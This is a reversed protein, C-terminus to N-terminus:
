LVLNPVRGHRYLLRPKSIGYGQVFDVGMNKLLSVTEKDEASEAITQMGMAHGVDNIASVLTHNVKDQAMRRVFSGDIKLYDVSFERLYSFSSLGSGFDDLSFLCGLQRLESVFRKAQAFNRIAATETIEFCICDPPVRSNKLETQIYNTMDPDTLSLGSLNIAMIGSGNVANKFVTAYQALASSVVWRDIAVMMGFREAAPIFAGPELIHGETDAVRVLIEIHECVSDSDQQLPEISQGLLIFRKDHLAQSLSAASRLDAQRQAVEEDEPQYVHYRNRGGDKAAYCAIDALSLLHSVTSSSMSIPVLGISAGIEFQNDQWSFRFSKLDDILAQAIRCAVDLNCGDLLVGFEDGGLRAVTDHKRVRSALMGAVQRLLQDGANHGVTDNVIKFQDLDLYCLVHEIGSTKSRERAGALRHEFERRNILGTLEDHTAQHILQQSLQYSDTIDQGVGRYGKFEGGPSLVPKAIMRYVAVADNPLQVTLETTAASKAELRQLFSRVSKPEHTMGQLVMSFDQGQLALATRGTLKALSESVYVLRNAADLEWAVDVAIEAFDQFRQLLENGSNPAPADTNTSTSTSTSPNIILCVSNNNGAHELETIHMVVSFPKGPLTHHTLRNAYGSGQALARGIFSIAEDTHAFLDLVNLGVLEARACEYLNAAAANSDIIRLTRSDLLLVAPADGSPVRVGATEGVQEDSAPGMPSELWLMRGDSLSLRQYHRWSIVDNLWGRDAAVPQSLQALRQELWAAADQGDDLSIVGQELQLELWHRIDLGVKLHGGLYAHLQAFRTNWALLQAQPGFLALGSGVVAGNLDPLTAPLLERASGSFGLMGGRPSLRPKGTLFVWRLLSGTQLCLLVNRFAQGARLQQSIYAWQQPCVETLVLDALARHHLEQERIPYDQSAVPSLASIRHLVDTEWLWDVGTDVLEDRIQKGGTAGNTAVQKKRAHRSYRPVFGTQALADSVTTAVRTAVKTFLKM